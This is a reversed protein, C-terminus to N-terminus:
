LYLVLLPPSTIMGAFPWPFVLLFELFEGFSVLVNSPIINTIFIYPADQKM